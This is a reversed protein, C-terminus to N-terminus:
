YMEITLKTLIFHWSIKPKCCNSKIKCFDGYEISYLCRLLLWHLAQELYENNVQENIFYEM